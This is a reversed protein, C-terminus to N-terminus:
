IREGKLLRRQNRILVDVMQLIGLSILEDKISQFELMRSHGHRQINCQNLKKMACSLNNVQSFYLGPPM